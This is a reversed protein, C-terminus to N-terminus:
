GARRSAFVTRRIADMREPGAGLAAAAASLPIHGSDLGRLVIETYLRGHRKVVRLPVPVKVETSDAQRDPFRDGSRSRWDEYFSRSAGGIIVLRRLVVEWSVWYRRALAALDEDSWPADRGHRQVEPQRVLDDGPVLVAGAVRNCFVEARETEDRIRQAEHLDCVGGARLMLHVTEHLLTFCRASPWDRGNAVVVPLPFLAISFGRAEDLAVFQKSSRGTQFVLVGARELALRWASLADYQNGWSKQSRLEVGLVGRIRGAVEEADQSLDSELGFRPLELGVGSAIDLADERREMALRIEVLLEPSSAAPGVGARRRYDRLMPADVPPEDLFFLSIPRVYYKSLRRLQSMTPFERGTEWAQLRDPTVSAAKAAVSV